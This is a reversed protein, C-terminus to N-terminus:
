REVRDELFQLLISAFEDPREVPALHGAGAIERYTADPLRGALSRVASTPTSQDESGCICVAPVRISGLLGGLDAERLAACSGLYGNVPARALLATWGRVAVPQERRYSSGFWREM